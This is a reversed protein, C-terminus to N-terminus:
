PQLVDLWYLSILGLAGIIGVGGWFIQRKTFRQPAEPADDSAHTLFAKAEEFKEDDTTSTTAQDNM